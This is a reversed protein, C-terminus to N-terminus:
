GPPRALLGAVAELATRIGEMSQYTLLKHRAEFVARPDEGDVAGRDILAELAGDVEGAVDARGPVEVVVDAYRRKSM